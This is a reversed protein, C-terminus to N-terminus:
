ARLLDEWANLHSRVRALLSVPVDRVPVLVEVPLLLLGHCDIVVQANQVQVNSALVASADQAVRLVGRWPSVLRLHRLALFSEDRLEHIILRVVRRDVDCSLMRLLDIETLPAESPLLRLRAHM